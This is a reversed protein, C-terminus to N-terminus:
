GVEGALSLVQMAAVGLELHRLDLLHTVGRLEVDGDDVVFRAVSGLAVVGELLLLSLAIGDLLRDMPSSSSARDQSTMLASSLSGSSGSSASSSNMSQASSISARSSPATRLSSRELRSAAMAPVPTSM